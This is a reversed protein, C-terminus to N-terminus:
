ELEVLPEGEAVAQGEEVLIASVTGEDEAEVPMEMKMSELVIVTQGEDVHDGPKVEVRWVTGSIHAEIQAM